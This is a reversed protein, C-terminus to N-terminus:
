REEPLAIPGVQAALAHGDVYGVEVRIVKGAKLTGDGQAVLKYTAKKVSFQQDSSGQVRRYMVALEFEVAEVKCAGARRGEPFVLVDGPRFRSPVDIYFSVFARASDPDYPGSGLPAGAKASLKRVLQDREAVAQAMEAHKAMGRLARLEEDIEHLREVGEKM